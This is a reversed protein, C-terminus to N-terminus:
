VRLLAASDEPKAEGHPNFWRHGFTRRWIPSLEGKGLFSVESPTMVVLCCTCGFKCEIALQRATDITFPWQKELLRAILLSENQGGCAVAIKMVVRGKRIVSILGQTKLVEQAQQSDKKRPM